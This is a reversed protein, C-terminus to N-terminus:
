VGLPPNKPLLNTPKLCKMSKKLLTYKPRRILFVSKILTSFRIKPKGAGIM